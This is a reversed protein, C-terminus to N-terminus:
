KLSDPLKFGIPVDHEGEKKESCTLRLCTTGRLALLTNYEKAIQQCSVKMSFTQTFASWHLEEFPNEGWYTFTHKPYNIPSWAGNWDLGIGRELRIKDKFASSSLYNQEFLKFSIGASHYRRTLHAVGEEFKMKYRWYGSKRLRYSHILEHVISESESERRLFVRGDSTDFEGGKKNPDFTGKRFKVERAVNLIEGNLLNILNAGGSMNWFLSPSLSRQFSNVGGIAWGAVELNDDLKSLGLMDFYRIPENGVFGYLNGGGVEEIPDRSQWRGQQANYFAQGDQTLLGLLILMSLLKARMEKEKLCESEYSGYFM